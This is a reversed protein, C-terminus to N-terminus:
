KDRIPVGRRRELEEVFVDILVRVMDLIEEIDPKRLGFDLSFRHVIGHRFEIMKALRRELVLLKKGVKKRRRILAQFDISFWDNFANHISGISQFSYWQAVVDELTTTGDRIACVDAMDIKKNQKKLREQARADHRLMIKFSQSFFHEIAAVVFPLLANYLVRTPDLAAIPELKTGVMNEM